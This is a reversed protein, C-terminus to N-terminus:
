QAGLTEFNISQDNRIALGRANLDSFIKSNLDMELNIFSNFDGRDLFYFEGVDNTILIRNPESPIRGFRFPMLSYGGLSQFHEEELFKVKNM